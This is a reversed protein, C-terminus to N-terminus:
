KDRQQRKAEYLANDIIHIVDDAISDDLLELQQAVHQGYNFYKSKTGEKTELRDLLRSSIKSFIEDNNDVDKKSSKRTQTHPQHADISIPASPPRPTPRIIRAQLPTSSPRHTPDVNAPVPTSSPSPTSVFIDTQTHQFQSLEDDYGMTDLSDLSSHVDRPSGQGLRNRNVNMDKIRRHESVSFHTVPISIHTGSSTGPTSSSQYPKETSSLIDLAPSSESNEM